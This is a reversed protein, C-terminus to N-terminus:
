TLIFSSIQLNSNIDILFSDSDFVFGTIFTSSGSITNLGSTDLTFTTDLFGLDGDTSENYNILAAHANNVFIFTLTLILALARVGVMATKYRSSMLVVRSSLRDALGFLALGVLAGIIKRFM